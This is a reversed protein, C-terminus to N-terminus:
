DELSMDRISNNALYCPYSFNIIINYIIEKEDSTFELLKTIDKKYWIYAYNTIDLCSM